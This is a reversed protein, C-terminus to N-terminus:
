KSFLSGPSKCWKKNTDEKIYFRTIEGCDLCLDCYMQVSGVLFAKKYNPGINGTEASQGISISEEINESECHPCNM